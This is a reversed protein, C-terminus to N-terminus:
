LNVCDMILYKCSVHKVVEEQFDLLVSANLPIMWRSALQVEMALLHTVLTLRLTVNAVLGDKGM